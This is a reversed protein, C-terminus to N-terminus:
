FSITVFKTFIIDGSTLELGEQVKNIRDIRHSIYHINHVITSQFAAQAHM